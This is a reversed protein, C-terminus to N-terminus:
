EEAVPSYNDCGKCNLNCHEALHIEFSMKRRNLGFRVIRNMGIRLPIPANSYVGMYVKKIMRNIGNDMREEKVVYALYEDRFM